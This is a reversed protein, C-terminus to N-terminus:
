MRIWYGTKGSYVVCMCARVRVCLGVFPIPSMVLVLVRKPVINIINYYCWQRTDVISYVHWNLKEWLNVVRLM